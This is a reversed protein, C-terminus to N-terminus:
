RTSARLERLEENRMDLFQAPGKAIGGARVCQGAVGKRVALKIHIALRHQLPQRPQSAPIPAQRLEM